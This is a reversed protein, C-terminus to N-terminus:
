LPRSPHNGGNCISLSAFISLKVSILFLVTSLTALFQPISKHKKSNNNSHDERGGGRPLSQPGPWSGHTSHTSKSRRTIYIVPLIYYYLTNLYHKPLMITSSGVFIIIPDQFLIIRDM